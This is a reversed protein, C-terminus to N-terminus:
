KTRAEIYDVVDKVTVFDTINVNEFVISFTEEIAIVMYLMGVSSLGLDTALKSDESCNEVVESAKDDAMKLIDKLNEFIEKRDM